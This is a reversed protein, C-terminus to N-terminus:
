LELSWAFAKKGNKPKWLISNFHSFAPGRPNGKAEQLVVWAHSLREHAPVPSDGPVAQRCAALSTAVAPMPGARDGEFLTQADQLPQQKDGAMAMAQKAAVREASAKAGAVLWAMRQCILCHLASRFLFSSSVDSAVDFQFGTFCFFCARSGGTSECCNAFM